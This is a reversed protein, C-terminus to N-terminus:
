PEIVAQLRLLAIERLQQAVILEEEAPTNGLRQTLLDLIERASRGAARILFVRGFRSEYARNGDAIAALLVADEGTVQAQESASLRSEESSGAAKEGIRPHHSLAAEIEGSTFPLAATRATGVLAQRSAFPRADVVQDIWRQIDLCPRLLIELEARTAENCQELLM